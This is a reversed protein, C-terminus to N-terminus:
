YGSQKKEVVAVCSCVIAFIFTIVAFAASFLYLKYAASFLFSAIAGITVSTVLSFFCNKENLKEIRELHQEHKIQFIIQWEEPSIIERKNEKKLKDM